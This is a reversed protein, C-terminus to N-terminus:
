QADRWLHSAGGRTLCATSLLMRLIHPYLNTALCPLATLGEPAIGM